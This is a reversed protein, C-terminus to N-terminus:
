LLRCVLDKPSQLESTHKKRDAPTVCKKHACNRQICWHPAEINGLLNFNRKRDIAQGIPVNSADTLRCEIPLRHMSANFDPLSTNNTNSPPMMTSAMCAPNAKRSSLVTRLFFWILASTLIRVSKETDVM